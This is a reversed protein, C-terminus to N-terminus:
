LTRGVNDKEHDSYTTQPLGNDTRYFNNAASLRNVFISYVPRLLTKRLAPNDGPAVSESEDTPEM